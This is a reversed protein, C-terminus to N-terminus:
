QKTDDEKIQTGEEPNMRIRWAKLSEFVGEHEIRDKRYTQYEEIDFPISPQPNLVTREHIIQAYYADDQM